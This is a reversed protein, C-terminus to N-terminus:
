GDTDRGAGRAEIAEGDLIRARREDVEGLVRQRDDTLAHRADGRVATEVERIEVDV